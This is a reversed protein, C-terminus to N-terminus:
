LNGRNFLPTKLQELRLVEDKLEEIEDLLEENEDRCEKLSDKLEQNEKHLDKSKLEAIEKKMSFCLKELEDNRKVELDFTQQWSRHLKVLSPLTNKDLAYNQCLEANKDKTWEKSIEDMFEQFAFAYSKSTQLAM